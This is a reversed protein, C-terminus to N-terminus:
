SNRRCDPGLAHCGHVVFPLDRGHVRLAEAGRRRASSGCGRSRRGSARPPRRAAPPAAHRGARSRRRATRCGRGGRTSRGARSAGPATAAPSPRRGAGARWAAAPSRGSRLLPQGRGAVDHSQLLARRGPAATPLGPQSRRCGPCKQTRTSPVGSAPRRPGPPDVAVVEGDVHGEHPVLDRAGATRRRWGPPRGGRAAGPGACAAAPPPGRGRAARAARRRGAPPRRASGTAGCSMAVRRSGTASGARTDRPRAGRVHVACLALGELPQDPVVDVPDRGGERAGAQCAIVPRIQRSWTRRPRHAPARRRAVVVGYAAGVKRSSYSLTWSPRSGCGCRIAHGAGRSPPRGAPRAGRAPQSRSTVAPCAGAAAPPRRRGPQPTDLRSPTAPAARRARARAGLGALPHELGARRAPSGARGSRWGARGGACAVQEAHQHVHAVTGRRAPRPGARRGGLGRTRGPASCASGSRSSRRATSVSSSKRQSASTRSPGSAAASRSASRAPSCSGTTTIPRRTPPAPPPRRGCPRRGRPRRLCDVCRAPRPWRSM